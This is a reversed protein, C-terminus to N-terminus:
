PISGYEEPYSGPAEGNFSTAWFKTRETPISGVDAQNLTLYLLGNYSLRMRSM